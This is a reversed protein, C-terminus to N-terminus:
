SFNDYGKDNRATVNFTIRADTRKFYLKGSLTNTGAEVNYTFKDVTGDHDTDDGLQGTMVFYTRQINAAQSLTFALELLDDKNSVVDLAQKELGSYGVNAVAYFTKDNGSHIAFNKITGTTPRDGEANKENTKEWDSDGDQYFQSNDLTGDGNFAFVYINLVKNEANVSAAARTQVVVTKEVQFSLDVTMPIGEEVKPENENSVFTEDVCAYCLLTIIYGFVIKIVRNTM